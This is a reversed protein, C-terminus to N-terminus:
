TLDRHHLGGLRGVPQSTNDYRGRPQLRQDDAVGFFRESCFGAGGSQKQPRHFIASARAPQCRAHLGTPLQPRKRSGSVARQACPQNGQMENCITGPTLWCHPRRWLRKIRCACRQCVCGSQDIMGIGGQPYLQPYKWRNGCLGHGSKGVFGLM